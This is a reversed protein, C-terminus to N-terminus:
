RVVFSGEESLVDNVFIKYAWTGSPIGSRFSLAVSQPRVFGGPCARASITCEDTAAPQPVGDRTWETRFRAGVPLRQSWSVNVAATRAPFETQDAACAAGTLRVCRRVGDIADAPQAAAPTALIVPPLTPVAGPTVVVVVPTIPLTAGAGPPRLTPTIAGGPGSAVIPVPTVNALGPVTTRAPTAAAAGPGRPSIQNAALAILALCVLGLAGVLGIIAWRPPAGTAIAKAPAGVAAVVIATSNDSGGAANARDIIVQAAANPTNTRLAARLEEASVQDWVGDSCLLLQDGPQWDFQAVDPQWQTPHGLARTLASRHASNRAEEETLTGAQLQEAVWSHDRTLQELLGGRLRYCRSDGTHAVWVTAGRVVAAILTTGMQTQDVVEAQLGTVADQAKAFAQKLGEAPDIVDGEYYTDSVARVAADAAVEGATQGGMGDALVFLLGNVDLREQAVATPLAYRDENTQRTKGTDSFAGFALTPAAAPAPPQTTNM